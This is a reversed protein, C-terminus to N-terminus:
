GDEKNFTDTVYEYITSGPVVTGNIKPMLIIKCHHQRVEVLVSKGVQSIDSRSSQVWTFCTAQQISVIILIVLAFTSKLKEEYTTHPRRLTNNIILEDLFDVATAAAM